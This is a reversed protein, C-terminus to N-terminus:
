GKHEKHNFKTGETTLDKRYSSFSQEARLPM